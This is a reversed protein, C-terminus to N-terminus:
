GKRVRPLVFRLFVMAVFVGCGLLKAWLPVPGTYVLPKVQCLALGAALGLGDFVLDAWSWKGGRLRDVMEKGFALVAVVLVALAIALVPGAGSGDAIGWITATLLLCIVFHLAKDM